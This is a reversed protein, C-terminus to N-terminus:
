VLPRLRDRLGVAIGSVTAPPIAAHLGDILDDVIEVVRNWEKEDIGYPPNDGIREAADLLATVPEGTPDKQLRDAAVFLASLVEIDTDDGCKGVILSGDTNRPVQGSVYALDGVLVVPYFVGAPNTACRGELDYGLQKVREEPSGEPHWGPKVRLAEIEPSASARTRGHRHGHHHHHTRKKGLPSTGHLRAASPNRHSRIHTLAAGSAATFSASALAVLVANPM